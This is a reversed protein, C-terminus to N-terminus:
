LGKDGDTSIGALAGMPLLGMAVLYKPDIWFVPSGDKTEHRSLEPAEPPGNFKLLKDQSATQVPYGRRKLSAWTNTAADTVTSDSQFPLGEAKAQKALDEYIATSLGKGQEDPPLRTEQISIAKKGGRESRYATTGWPLGEGWPPISMREPQVMIKLGDDAKILKRALAAEGRVGPILGAMAQVVGHIDGRRKADTLDAAAVPVVLPTAGAIGGIGEVLHRAVHPQAGMVELTDQAANGLRQSPTYTPASLTEGRDTALKDYYALVTDPAAAALAPAVLSGMAPEAAAPHRSALLQAAIDEVAGM